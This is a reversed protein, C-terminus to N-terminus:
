EKRVILEGKDNYQASFDIIYTYDGYVYDARCKTANANEEVTVMNEFKGDQIKCWKNDADNPDCFPYWLDVIYEKMKSQVTEDSCTPPNKPSHSSSGGCATLAFIACLIIIKNM